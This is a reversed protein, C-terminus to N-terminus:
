KEDIGGSSAFIKFFHYLFSLFFSFFRPFNYNEIKQFFKAGSPSFM